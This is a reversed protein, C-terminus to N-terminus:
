VFVYMVIELSTQNHNFVKSAGICTTMVHVLGDLVDAARKRAGNGNRKEGKVLSLSVCVLVRWPRFSGAPMVQAEHLTSVAERRAAEALEAAKHEAEFLAARAEERTKSANQM